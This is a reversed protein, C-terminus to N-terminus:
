RVGNGILGITTEFGAILLGISQSLLETPSLRDGAEEARILESLIDERPQTRREAILEQFYGALEEAAAISRATTEPPLLAAALLHTALATWETFKMRDAVPVGMMECIVTSPIPLALDRIVDLEGREIVDDILRDALAQVSARLRDMARPKFAQSMLKRLRTHDPPDQQLIFQNFGGSTTVAGFSNGDSFRVGSPVEKLMRVVDDYRTLRFIGVPTENVPDHERLRALLKYPDRQRALEPPFVGLWPDDKWSDDSQATPTSGLLHDPTLGM